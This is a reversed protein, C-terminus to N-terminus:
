FNLCLCLLATRLLHQSLTSLWLSEGLPKQVWNEALSDWTEVNLRFLFFTSAKQVHYLNSKPSPASPPCHYCAQRKVCLGSMVGMCSPQDSSPFLSLPCCLSGWGHSYDCLEHCGCHCSVRSKTQASSFSGYFIRLQFPGMLIMSDLEQSTVWFDSWIGSLATWTSRSILVMVPQGPSGITTGSWVRTFLMEMIYLMVRRM